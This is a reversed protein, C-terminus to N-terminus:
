MCRVCACRAEDVLGSLRGDVSFMALTCLMMLMLATLTTIRSHAGDADGNRDFDADVHGVTDGDGVFSM